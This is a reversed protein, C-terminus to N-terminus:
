YIGDIDDKSSALCIPYLSKNAHETPVAPLLDKSAFSRSLWQTAQCWVSQVEFLEDIASLSQLDGICGIILLYGSDGCGYNSRRFESQGLLQPQMPHLHPFTTDWGSKGPIKHVECSSKLWLFWYSLTYNREPTIQVFRSAFCAVQYRM